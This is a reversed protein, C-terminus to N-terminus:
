NEYQTMYFDSLFSQCNQYPVNKSLKRYTAAARTFAEDFSSSGNLYKLFFNTFEKFEGSEKTPSYNATKMDIQNVYDM